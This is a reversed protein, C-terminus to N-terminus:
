HHKGRFEDPTCGFKRRFVNCFHSPDAFGSKWAAEKILCNESFITRAAFRLRWDLIFKAPSIGTEAKFLRSFHARSFGLAAAIDAVECPVNGVNKQLFAIVRDMLARNGGGGAASYIESIVQMWFSYAYSSATFRGPLNKDRHREIFDVVDWATASNATHFVLSSFSDQLKKTVDIIGSGGTTLYVFEWGDSSDPLYYVHDDPVTVMFADGPYLLHTEGDYDIAGCGSITYQWIAFETSIGRLRGNWRYSPSTVYEHGCNVFFVPLDDNASDYSFVINESM